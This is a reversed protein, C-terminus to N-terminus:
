AAEFGKLDEMAFDSHRLVEEVLHNVEAHSNLRSGSNQWNLTTLNTSSSASKSTDPISNTGPAVVHALNYSPVTSNPDYSPHHQYERFLGFINAVTQISDHVILRVRCFMRAAPQDFTVGANETGINAPV